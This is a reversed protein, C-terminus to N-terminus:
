SSDDEGGESEDKEEAPQEQQTRGTSIELIEKFKKRGEEMSKKLRDFARFQGNVLLNIPMGVEESLQNLTRGYGLRLLLIKGEPIQDLASLIRERYHYEISPSEHLLFTSNYKFILSCLFLEMPHQFHFKRIEPFPRRPDDGKIKKLIYATANLSLAEDFGHYENVLYFIYDTWDKEFSSWGAMREAEDSSKLQAVIRKLKKYRFYRKIRGLLGVSM